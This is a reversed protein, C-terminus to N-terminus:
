DSTKYLDLISSITEYMKEKFFKPSIIECDDQYRMLRKMLQDLDEGTNTVIRINESEFSSTEHPREKYARALRGKLRFMVTHQNGFNKIQTPLQKISLIKAIPIEVIKDKEEVVLLIKRGTYKVECPRGTIKKVTKNNGKNYEVEVSYNEDCVKECKNIQEEFSSYYFSLDKNGANTGSSEEIYARSDGSLRVFLNELFECTARKLKSDSMVNLANKIAVIVDLDSQNLDISYPSNLIIFKQGQKKVTVGFINLTNLYKNLMVAGNIDSHKNSALLDKVKEYTADDEYLLKLFELIKISSNSIKNAL